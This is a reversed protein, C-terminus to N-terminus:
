AGAECGLLLRVPFERKSLRNRESQQDLLAKKLEVQVIDQDFTETQRRVSGPADPQDGTVRAAWEGADSHPQWFGMRTSLCPGVAIAHDRSNTL